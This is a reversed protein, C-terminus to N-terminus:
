RLVDVFLNWIWQQCLKIRRVTWVCAFRQLALSPNSRTSTYVSNHAENKSLPLVKIQIRINKCYFPPETNPKVFANQRKTRGGVMLLTVEDYNTGPPSEHNWTFHCIVCHTMCTRYRTPAYELLTCVDVHRCSFWILKSCAHRTIYHSRSYWQVTYRSDVLIRNM